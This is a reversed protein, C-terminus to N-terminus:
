EPNRKEYLPADGTESKFLVFIFIFVLTAHSMVTSKILLEYQKDGQCCDNNLGSCGPFTKEIDPLEERKM